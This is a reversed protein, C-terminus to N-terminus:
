WREGGAKVQPEGAARLPAGSEAVAESGEEDLPPFDPHIGMAILAMRERHRILLKAITVVGGVLIAVIPISLALIPISM